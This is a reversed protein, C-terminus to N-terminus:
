RRGWLSFFLAAWPPVPLALCASLFHAFYPACHSPHRLSSAVCLPVLLSNNPEVTVIATFLVWFQSYKSLVGM